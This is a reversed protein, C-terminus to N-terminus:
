KLSQDAGTSGQYAYCTRALLVTWLYSTSSRRSRRVRARGRHPVLGPSGSGVTQSRAGPPWGGPHRELCGPRGRSPVVGRLEARGARDGPDIIALTDGAGMAVVMTGGGRVRYRETAPHRCVCVGNCCAHARYARRLRTLGPTGHCDGILSDGSVRRHFRM